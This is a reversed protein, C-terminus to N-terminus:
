ATSGSNSDYIDTGGLSANSLKIRVIGAATLNTGLICFTDASQTAAFTLDIDVTTVAGTRFRRGIDEQQLLTVPMGTAASSAALTANGAINAWAAAVNAVTM